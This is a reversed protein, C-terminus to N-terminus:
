CDNILKVFIAGVPPCKYTNFQIVASNSHNRYKKHSATSTCKCSSAEWGGVWEHTKEGVKCDYFLHSINSYCAQYRFCIFM